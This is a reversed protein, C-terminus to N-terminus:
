KQQCLILCRPDLMKLTLNHRIWPLVAKKQMNKNRMLESMGFRGMQVAKKGLWPIAHMTLAEMALEGLGGGEAPLNLKGTNSQRERIKNEHDRFFCMHLFVNIKWKKQQKTDEPNLAALKKRKKSM